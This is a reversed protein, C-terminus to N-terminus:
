FSFHFLELVPLNFMMRGIILILHSRGTPLYVMGSWDVRLKATTTSYNLRDNILSSYIPFPFPPKISLPPKNVTKGQFPPPPPPKNSPPPKISSKHYRCSFIVSRSHTTTYVFLIMIQVHYKAYIGFKINWFQRLNRIVIEFWWEQYKHWIDSCIM